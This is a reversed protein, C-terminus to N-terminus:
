SFTLLYKVGQSTDVTGLFTVLKVVTELVTALCMALNVVTALVTELFVMPKACMCKAGDSSEHPKTRVINAESSSEYAQTCALMPCRLEVRPPTQCACCTCWPREQVISTHAHTHARGHTGDETKRGLENGGGEVDGERSSVHSRSADRAVKGCASSRDALSLTSAAM